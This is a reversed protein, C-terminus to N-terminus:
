KSRRSRATKSALPLEVIYAEQGERYEKTEVVTRTVKLGPWTLFERTLAEGLHVNVLIQGSRAANVMRVAGVVPTGLLTLDNGVMAVRCSGSDLGLALGAGAPLNQSNQRFREMVEPFRRQIRQCFELAARARTEQAIGGFDPWFVLFGDGTFKDFWGKTAWAEARAGSTFEHLARAFGTPDLAEKMLSTSERIDAVVVFAKCDLGDTQLRDWEVESFKPTFGPPGHSKLASTVTRRSFAVNGRDESLGELFFPTARSRIPAQDTEEGSKTAHM